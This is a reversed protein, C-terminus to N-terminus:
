RSQIRKEIIENELYKFKEGLTIIDIQLAYIDSRLDENLLKDPFSDNITYTLLTECRRQMELCRKSQWDIWFELKSM